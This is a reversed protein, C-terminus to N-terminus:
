PAPSVFNLSFSFEQGHFHYPTRLDPNWFAITFRSLNNRLLTTDRPLMREERFLPYLSLKCFIQRVDGGFSHEFSAGGSESFTMLIYDPHDLCHSHPAEFPPLKRGEDDPVSGDRGWLVAGRRFGMLAPPLSQPKVFHLNLPQAEGLLQVCTGPDGLGELAPCEVLLLTPDEHSLGRVVCTCDAPLVAATAHVVSTADLELEAHPALRVLDGVEYGHAFPKKRVVTKLALGQEGKPPAVFIGVMAPPPVAHLAFRKQATQETVRLVNMVARGDAGRAVHSPRPAVYVHSGVLPHADFGLRAADISLPHNFLLSFPAGGYQGDVARECAFVFREREDLHVAFTLGADEKRAVETMTRELHAALSAPSYRGDPISCARVHGAPDAFVLVHTGEAGGATSGGGLPFYFRNVAAELEAGFRLPQGVCLPRHCPAYFGSPMSAYDWLRTAECPWEQRHEECRLPHTSLGCLSALPTPLVRVRTYRVPVVCTLRVRDEADEYSFTLKVGLPLGARAAAATLAECLHAHSPPPPVYLTRARSLDRAIGPLSFSEDSTVTVHPLAVDGGCAGLLRARARISEPAGGLGHPHECTLHTAGDRRAVATIRNRVPPLQIRVPREPEPEGPATHVVDLYNSTADLRIGENFWLRCWESEVTWQVMPFECSALAVRTAEERLRGLPMEFTFSSDQVQVADRTHFCMTAVDAPM